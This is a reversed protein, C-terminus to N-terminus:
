GKVQLRKLRPKCARYVIQATRAPLHWRYRWHEIYSSWVPNIQKVWDRDLKCLSLMVGTTLYYRVSLPTTYKVIGRANMDLRRMLEQKDPPTPLYCLHKASRVLYYRGGREELQHRLVLDTCRQVYDDDVHYHRLSATRILWPGGLWRKSPDAIIPDLQLGGDVAHLGDDVVNYRLSGLVDGDNGHLMMDEYWNMMPIKGVDIFVCWPTQVMGLLLEFAKGTTMGKRIQIDARPYGMLLEVTGDTSGGDIVLLRRIPVEYYFADLTECLHPEANLTLLCCDVGPPDNVFQDIM